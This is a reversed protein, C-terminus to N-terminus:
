IRQPVRPGVTICRHASESSPPTTVVQGMKPWAFCCSSRLRLHLFALFRRAKENESRHIVVTNLLLEPSTGVEIEPKNHREVIQSAFNTVQNAVCFPM